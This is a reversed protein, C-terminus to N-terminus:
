EMGRRPVFRGIAFSGSEDGTDVLAYLTDGSAGLVPPGGSLALWEGPRPSLMLVHPDGYYLVGRVLSYGLLTRSSFLAVAVDFQKGWQVLEKPGHINTPIEMARYGVPRIALSSMTSLDNSSQWLSDSITAMAVISTGTRRDPVSWYQLTNRWYPNAPDRPAPPTEQVLTRSRLHGDTGWSMLAGRDAPLSTGVLTSDDIVNLSSIFSTSDLRVSAVFSDGVVLQVRGGGEGVWLSDGRLSLFRPEIFEGPGEGRNGLVALARGDRGFHVVRSESADAIWFTGDSSNVAFGSFRLISRERATDLRISDLLVFRDRFATLPIPTATTPAPAPTGCALAITSVVVVPVRTFAHSRRAM